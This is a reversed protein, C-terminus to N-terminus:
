PRSGSVLGFHHLLTRVDGKLTRVDGKITRVDKSLEEYAKDIADVILSEPHALKARRISQKAPTAPQRQASSM